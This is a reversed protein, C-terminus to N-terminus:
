STARIQEYGLRYAGISKDAFRGQNRFLTDSPDLHYDSVGVFVPAGKAGNSDPNAPAQNDVSASEDSAQCASFTNYARFSAAYRGFLYRYDMAYGNHDAYTLEGVYYGNLSMVFSTSAM